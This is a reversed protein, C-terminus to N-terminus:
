TTPMWSPSPRGQPAATVIIASDRDVPAVSLVTPVRVGAREAMSTALALQAARVQPKVSLRQEDVDRVRISRLVGRSCSSTV